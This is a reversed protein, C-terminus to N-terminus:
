GYNKMPSKETSMFSKLKARAKSLNSKSTGRSIKLKQAIEEHSFGEIAHLVFVMRYQPSLKRLLGVLYEEEFIDEVLNLTSTVPEYHNALTAKKRKRYHDIGTNIIIRRVWFKFPINSKYNNIYKLMKLFGDNAVEEADQLSNTYRVAISMGYNYMHMFLKKQSAKSNNRCGDILINLENDTM